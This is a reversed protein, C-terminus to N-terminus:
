GQFSQLNYGGFVARALKCAQAWAEVACQLQTMDDFGEQAGPKGKMKERQRQRKAELEAAMQARWRELEARKAPDTTGAIAADIKAIDNLGTRYVHQFFHVNSAYTSPDGSKMMGLAISGRDKDVGLRDADRVLAKIQAQTTFGMKGLADATAGTIGVSKLFAPTAGAADQRSSPSAGGDNDGATRLAALRHGSLGQWGHPGNEANAVKPGRGDFVNRPEDRNAIAMERAYSAALLVRDALSMSRDAVRSRIRAFDGDGLPVAGPIGIVAQDAAARLQRDVDGPNETPATM